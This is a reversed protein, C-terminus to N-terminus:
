ADNCADDKGERDADIRRFLDRLAEAAIDGQPKQEKGKQDDSLACGYEEQLEAATKERNVVPIDTFSQFGEAHIEKVFLLTITLKPTGRMHAGCYPCRPTHYEVVSDHVPRKGCHSCMTPTFNYEREWRAEIIPECPQTPENDIKRSVLEEMRTRKVTPDKLLTEKLREADIMRKESEM